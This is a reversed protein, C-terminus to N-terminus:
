SIAIRSILNLWDRAAAKALAEAPLRFGFSSIINRMQILLKPNPSGEDNTMRRIEM